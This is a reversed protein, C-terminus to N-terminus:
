AAGADPEHLHEGVTRILWRRVGAKDLRKVTDLADILDPNDYFLRLARRRFTPDLQLRTLLGQIRCANAPAFAVEHARQEQWRRLIQNTKPDVEACEETHVGAMAHEVPIGAEALIRAQPLSMVQQWGRAGYDLYIRVSTCEPLAQHKELRDIRVVRECVSCRTLNKRLKTM